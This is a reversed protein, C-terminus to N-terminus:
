LENIGLIKKRIRKIEGDYKIWNNKNRRIIKNDNNKKKKELVKIWNWKM